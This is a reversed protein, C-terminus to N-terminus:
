IYEYVIVIGAAGVGAAKVDSNAIRKAAGSGGAGSPFADNGVVNSASVPGLGGGGYVAEGGNGGAASVGILLGPSGAGGRSGVIQTVNTSDYGFAGGLGGVGADLPSSVTSAARGGIEGGACTIYSGFSSAGGNGGSTGGAGVTIVASAPVVSMSGKFFGGAGGGAGAQSSASTTCPMGGAGGGIVEIIISDIGATPTYTGSATFRRIAALRGRSLSFTQNVFATTAIQTSATGLPATPATPIGAFAPSLLKAFYSNLAAWLQKKNEKDLILGAGEIASAIEEQVADFFDEDLATPLEGTQPNGGTFGNKGVGFKDSQATSTDIRHM